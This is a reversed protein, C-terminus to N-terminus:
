INMKEIDPVIPKTDEGTNLVTYQAIEHILRSLVDLSLLSVRQFKENQGYVTFCVVLDSFSDQLRVEEVYEKNIWNAM